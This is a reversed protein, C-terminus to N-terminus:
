FPLSDEDEDAVAAAKPAPAAPAQATTSSEENARKGGIFKIDNIDVQMNAREQGKTDVWTQLVLDGVISVMDGKHLYKMCTESQGRWATCRFFNTIFEGDKDKKRTDSAVSFNACPISGQGQTPDGTLRGVIFVKNM